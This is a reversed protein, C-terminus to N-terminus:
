PLPRLLAARAARETWVKGSFWGVSGPRRVFELEIEDPLDLGPLVMTISASPYRWREIEVEDSRQTSDASRAEQGQRASVRRRLIQVGGPSGLLILASGRDTLAGRRGEAGFLQDAMAVRESFADAFPNIEDEPTPDRRTWFSRIFALAQERSTVRRYARLELPQILWRVPSAPWDVLEKPLNRPAEAAAAFRVPGLLLVLGISACLGLRCM